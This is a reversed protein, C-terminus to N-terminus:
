IFVIILRSELGNKIINKCIEANNNIIIFSESKSINQKMTAKIVIGYPAYIYLVDGSAAWFINM